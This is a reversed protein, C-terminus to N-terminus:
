YNELRRRILALFDNRIESPEIIKVHDFYRMAFLFASKKSIRATFRFSNNSTPLLNPSKGFTEIVYDLIENEAEFTVWQDEESFMYIKREAYITADHEYDFPSCEINTISLNTIKDIRFHGQDEYKTGTAILYPNNDQYIIFRPEVVIPSTNVIHLKKNMEYHQYDFSIRKNAATARTITEINRMLNSNETKKRNPTYICSNYAKEYSDSLAYKLKIILHESESQNIFNMNHIANCILLIEGRSFFASELYYGRRHEDYIITFFLLRNIRHILEYTMKRRMRIHYEAEMIQEIKSRMLVHDQDTKKLLLLILALISDRKDM